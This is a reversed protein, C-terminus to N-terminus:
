ALYNALERGTRAFRDSVAQVGTTPNQRRRGTASLFFSGLLYILAGAIL